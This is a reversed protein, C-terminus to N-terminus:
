DRRARRWDGRAHVLLLGPTSRGGAARVWQFRHQPGRNSMTDRNQLTPDGVRTRAVVREVDICRRGNTRGTKSAARRAVPRAYVYRNDSGGNERYVGCGLGNGGVM